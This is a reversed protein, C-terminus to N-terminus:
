MKKDVRFLKSGKKKLSALAYSMCMIIILEITFIVFTRLWVFQTLNKSYYVYIGVM